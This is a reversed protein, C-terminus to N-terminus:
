IGARLEINITEAMACEVAEAQMLGLRMFGLASGATAGFIKVVADQLERRLVADQAGYVGGAFDKFHELRSLFADAFRQAEQREDRVPVVGVPLYRDSLSNVYADLREDDLGARTGQRLETFSHRWTQGWEALEDHVTRDSGGEVFAAQWDSLHAAVSVIGLILGRSSEIKPYVFDEFIGVLFIVDVYSRKLYYYAPRNHSHVVKVSALMAVRYGDKILRIGLDLDEAYDGRYRYCYFTERGILCSVDSLQGYSRLSMHDDGQYDGIRDYELCGLFRYHTNIMSDYMMDSDSRSYETCSAAVLKDGVHDLLYRLMGYIWYDGIPYADQVMFLLYDGHSADAGKNRTASHSFDEPPIEVVNCGAARAIEVTGDLSGSDIVVIELERFGRQARLKRLLLRFENGANLTPIVVSVSAAIPEGIGALEPHLRFNRPSRAEAQFLGGDAAPPRSALLAIIIRSNRSYYPMRYIFGALGHRRLEGRVARFANLVFRQLGILRQMPRFVISKNLPKRFFLFIITYFGRIFRALFRLPKTIRWSRSTIISAIKGDCEALTLNLSAIQGDREAVAQNLRAMQGDREAVAQNLHALQGEGVLVVKKLRDSQPSPYELTLIESAKSLEFVEYPYQPKHLLLLALDDSTNILPLRARTLADEYRLLRESPILLLGVEKSEGFINPEYKAYNKQNYASSIVGYAQFKYEQCWAIIPAGSELSNCEAFIVPKCREITGVAGKLVDLEMGEVDIKIFELRDLQCADLTKITVVEGCDDQSNKEELTRAGYNAKSDTQAFSVTLIKETAGLGSNIVCVNGDSALKANEILYAVTDHRPEFAIVKGNKGVMQSFARTHTGIFAGVDVVTDGLQIFHELLDIELQAWEGYLEMSSSIVTDDEIISFRGYRSNIISM